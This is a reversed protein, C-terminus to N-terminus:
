ATEAAYLNFARAAERLPRAREFVVQIDSEGLIRGVSLEVATYGYALLKEYEGRTFWRRLQDVHRCGCGVYMGAIANRQVWGFEEYWPRLRDHDDRDEVWLHSFGPKWPGRGSRDQVRFVTSM